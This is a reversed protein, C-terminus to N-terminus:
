KKLLESRYRKLPRMGDEPDMRWKSAEQENPESNIWEKKGIWKNWGWRKNANARNILQKAESVTWCHGVSSEFGQQDDLDFHFEVIEAGQAIATLVLEPNRTHDSWGVKVPCIFAEKIERIKSLNCHKPLAPYNSVCHLVAYPPNNRDYGFTIPWIADCINASMGASYIWPVGTKVVAKVLSFYLMEYSGIKFYDVYAALLPICELDFPTCIFKLDLKSCKYAIDLIFREPLEWKKMKAIQKKFEPAYLKEAKFLQFKVGWCGIEKAADILALTREISRNHNSGIEAIFQTM